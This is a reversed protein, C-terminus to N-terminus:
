LGNSTQNPNSNRIQGEVASLITLKDFWKSIRAEFKSNTELKPNRNESKVPICDSEQFMALTFVM